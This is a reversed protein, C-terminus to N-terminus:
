QGLDDKGQDNLRVFNKTMVELDIPRASHAVLILEHNLRPQGTTHRLWTKLRHMVSFSRECEVSTVPCALYINALMCVDKFLVDLKKQHVDRLKYGTLILDFHTM